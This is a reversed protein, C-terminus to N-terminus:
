LITSDIKKLTIAPYITVLINKKVSLSKFLDKTAPERVTIIDFLNLGIRTLIKTYFKNIKQASAAYYILKTKFLKSFFVIMIFYLMHVLDDYIPTGGGILMLRANKIERIFKFPERKTDIAKIQFRKRVFNPDACFVTFKIDRNFNRLLSLISILIAKDGANNSDYWAGWICIKNDKNKYHKKMYKSIGILRMIGNM